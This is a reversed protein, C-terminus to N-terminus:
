HSDLVDVRMEGATTARAFHADVNEVRVLIGHAGPAALKSRERGRSRQHTTVEPKLSNAFILNLSAFKSTGSIRTAASSTVLPFGCGSGYKFPACSRLASGAFHM